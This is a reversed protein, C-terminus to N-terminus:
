AAGEPPRVAAKSEANEHPLFHGSAIWLGAGAVLALATIRSGKM